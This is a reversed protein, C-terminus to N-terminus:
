PVACPARRHPLHLDFSLGYGVSGGGNLDPIVDGSMQHGTMNHSRRATATFWLAAEIHPLDMRVLGAVSLEDSM